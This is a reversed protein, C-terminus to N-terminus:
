NTGQLGGNGGESTPLRIGLSSVNDILPWNTILGVFWRKSSTYSIILYIVLSLMKLYMAVQWITTNEKFSVYTFCTYNAM